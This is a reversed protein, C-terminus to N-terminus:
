HQVFKKEVRTIVNDIEDGFVQQANEYTQMKFFTIFKDKGFTDILEKVFVAALPYSLEQPLSQWNTWLNKIDVQKTPTHLRDKVLQEKDNNEQDFYAATGENILGSKKSIGTAYHSIVHTMEHGTTEQTHAHLTCTAPDAFGLDSKLINKADERSRWVFFDIKKPLTSKFFDNIKQYAAEHSSIFKQIDDDAMNQFHFRFNESAIVKWNDYFNHHGFLLTRKYAHQTINNTANLKICEELVQKSKEYERTM